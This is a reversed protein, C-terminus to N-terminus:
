TYYYRGTTRLWHARPMNRPRSFFTYALAEVLVAGIEGALVVWTTLAVWYSLGLFLAAHTLTTAVCCVLALRLRQGPYFLMVAPVEVAVTLGLARLYPIM